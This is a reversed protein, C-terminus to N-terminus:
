VRYFPDVEGGRLGIIKWGDSGMYGFKIWVYDQIPDSTSKEVLEDSGWEKTVLTCQYSFEFKVETILGDFDGDTQKWEIFNLTKVRAGDTRVLKDRIYNLANELTDYSGSPEWTTDCQSLPESFDKNSLICSYVNEAFSRGQAIIKEKEASKLKLDEVDLSLNSDSWTNISKEYDEWLLSTMKFEYEGRFVPSATYRYIDDGNGNQVEKEEIEQDDLTVTVSYPSEVTFSTIYNEASVLYQNFFLFSKEKQKVLKVTSSEQIGTNNDVYLVTYSKVLESHDLAANDNEEDDNSMFFNGQHSEQTVTGEIIEYNDPYIVVNNMPMHAIFQKQNIMGMEEIDLCNYVTGWEKDSCAEIYKQVIREPRNLAYGTIFFGSIIVVICALSIVWAKHASFFQLVNKGISHFPNKLPTAHKPLTNDILETGCHACYRVGSENQKGCKQCFM